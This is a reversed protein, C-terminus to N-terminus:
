VSESFEDKGGDEVERGCGVRLDVLREAHGVDTGARGWSEKLRGACSAQQFCPRGTSRRRLVQGGLSGDVVKSRKEELPPPKPGRTLSGACKAKAASSLEKSGVGTEELDALRRGWRGWAKEEERRRTRQARQTLLGVFGPAREGNPM